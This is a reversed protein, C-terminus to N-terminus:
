REIPEKTKRLLAILPCILLGSVTNGVAHIVDFPFGAAIWALMQKFNLGFLLAQAPSYLTGYLYGHAACVAMYVVPKWKEPINRPLLMTMGWLATWNYLYPLWWTSFGNMLGIIFVFV